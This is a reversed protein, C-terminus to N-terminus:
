NDSYNERQKKLYLYLLYADNCDELPKKITKNGAIDGEISRLFNCYPDDLQENEVIAKYMDNKTFSGGALGDRNRYELIVKKKGVDVPEYTLKCTELKLTTPSLVTINTTVRTMIKHRLLTSFTVLDIIDGASSSYSYGEIAVYTYLGTVINDLIDSVIMDTNRDYLHLKYLEAASYEKVSSSDNDIYRYSINDRCLDFWKSYKDSKMVADAKRCYNFVKGNVVLGTSILSPDIGILNNKMM